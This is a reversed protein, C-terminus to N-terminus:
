ILLAPARVQGTLKFGPNSRQREYAPSSVHHPLKSCVKLVNTHALTAGGTSDPLGSVEIKQRLGPALAGSDLPAARM